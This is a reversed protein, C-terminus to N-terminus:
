LWTELLSPEDEAGRPVKILGRRALESRAEIPDRYLRRDAARLGEAEVLIRRVEWPRSPDSASAHVTWLEM